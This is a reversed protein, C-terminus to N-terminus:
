IIPESLSRKYVSRCALYNTNTPRSITEKPETATRWKLDPVIRCLQNKFVKSCIFVELGTVVKLKVFM